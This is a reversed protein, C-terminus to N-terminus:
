ILCSTERGTGLQTHFQESISCETTFAQNSPYGWGRTNVMGETIGQIYQARRKCICTPSVTFSTFPSSSSSLVGLSPTHTPTSHPHINIHFIHLKQSTGAWGTEAWEGTDNNKGWEDQGPRALTVMEMHQMCQVQVNCRHPPPEPATIHHHKLLATTLGQTHNHPLTLPGCLSFDTM